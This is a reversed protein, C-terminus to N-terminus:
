PKKVEVKIGGDVESKVENVAKDISEGIREAPGKPEANCTFECGGMSLILVLAVGVVAMKKRM